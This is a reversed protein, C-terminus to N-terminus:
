RHYPSQSARQSRKNSLSRVDELLPELMFTITALFWPELPQIQQDAPWGLGTHLHGLEQPDVAM